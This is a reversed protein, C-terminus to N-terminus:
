WATKRGMGGVVCFLDNTFARWSEKHDAKVKRPIIKMVSSKKKIYSRM